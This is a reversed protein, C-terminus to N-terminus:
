VASSGDGMPVKPVGPAEGAGGGMPIVNGMQSQQQLLGDPVVQIRFSNINKLGALQAVFAFIKGLDYQQMIPPMQRMEGMLTRWLAAQAMRDVPLTGDVPVYDYFGMISDPNVGIFEQGAMQLASAGVIKLRWDQDYYQQSNQVLMKALPSFGVASFYESTTKLRNVSFTNASRIETASRRSSPNAMGMVQDNVGSIREGLSMMTALDNVNGRTVDTTHLQTVAERTDSGYAKPKLRIIGGPLPNMLDKMEVRSPDVVYENNLTKRVNFFHSNILWNMTNEIDATIEPIGRKYVGYGEPELELVAFPFRAHYNGLPRAALVFKYDDTVVFVWKERNKGEGLGWDSPVLDIFMEYAPVSQGALNGDVHQKSFEDTGPEFTVVGGSERGSKSMSANNMAEKVNVYQNDRAGDILKGWAINTWCGCFEGKQFNALTVRPDHLFDIPRVNYLKNGQYGRVRETVKVRKEKAGPVTVGMFTQPPQIEIRATTAWEETWHIGIIGAGYKGTDYLWTHLPVMMEGIRTQYNMLAEIATTSNAGRDQIGEFQFVPDRSLFVETWYTHSAMMVAYSYPIAITTYTPKGSERELRRLKDVDREPLYGQAQEEAKQWKALYAQYATSKQAAKVRAKVAELIRKHLESGVKINQTLDVAM